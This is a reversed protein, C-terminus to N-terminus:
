RDQYKEITFLASGIQIKGGILKGPQATIQGSISVNLLAPVSTGYKSNYFNKTQYFRDICDICRAAGRLKAQFAGLRDM